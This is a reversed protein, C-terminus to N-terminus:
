SSLSILFPHISTGPFYLLSQLQLWGPCRFPWPLPGPPPLSEIVCRLCASDPLVPMVVGYSGVAAAYIWVTKSKRCADNLLFRTEFNDVADLVLDADEVFEEVNTSNVDDVVADLKVTSNIRQLKIQAAVAKPLSQRVDEEDYLTQRQLNSLEVIDRDILRLSGIGSRVLQDAAVSGLAGLGVIVVKAEGLLKQGEEGIKEFRVQRSYRDTGSM